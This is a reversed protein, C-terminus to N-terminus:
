NLLQGQWEGNLTLLFARISQIDEVPLERGLQHRAMLKIVDELKEVEGLHLYPETLEINRLSPVKFVHRDEERGTVNYRGLNLNQKSEVASFYAKLIGLKQYMNGGINIGQHCSSCGYELFLQYGKKEKQNLADEDGQLYVDFRSNPTILTREFSSIADAINASSLGDAYTTNFKQMFEGDQKLKAIVEPWSSGMEVPNHIPGSAQAELNEARGDWFQRFNFGSNFVTPANLQGKAGNIGTSTKQRDTGALKLDHCSSCAISNNHSLRKDHFLMEGLAAKEINQRHKLPIATIPLADYKISYSAEEIGEDYAETTHWVQIFLYSMLLVVIFVASLYVRVKKIIM